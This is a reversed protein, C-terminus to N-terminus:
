FNFYSAADLILISQKTTYNTTGWQSAKWYSRKGSGVFLGGAGNSTLSLDRSYATDGEMWLHHGIWAPVLMPYKIGATPIIDGLKRNSVDLGVPKTLVGVGSNFTIVGDNNRLRLGYGGRELRERIGINSFIVVRYWGDRGDENYRNCSVYHGNQHVLMCEPDENYFFMLCNGYNLRPDISAPDFRGQIYVRAKHSVYGFGAPPVSTNFNSNNLIKLGATGGSTAPYAIVKILETLWNDFFNELLLGDVSVSEGNQSFQAKEYFGTLRFGNGSRDQNFTTFNGPYVHARYGAPIKVQCDWQFYRWDTPSTHVGPTGKSVYDTWILCAPSTQENFVFSSGDEQNTIKLGYSSM